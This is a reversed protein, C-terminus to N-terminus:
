DFYINISPQGLLMTSRDMAFQRVTLWLWITKGTMFRWPIKTQLDGMSRGRHRQCFPRELILAPVSLSNSIIWSLGLYDVWIEVSIFRCIPNDTSWDNSYEGIWSCDAGPDFFMAMRGGCGAGHVVVMGFDDNNGTCTNISLKVIAFLYIYM